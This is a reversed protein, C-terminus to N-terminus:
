EREEAAELRECVEELFDRLLGMGAKHHKLSEELEAVRRREESLDSRLEGVVKRLREERQRDTPDLAVDPGRSM